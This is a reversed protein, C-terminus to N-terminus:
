VDRAVTAADSPVECLAPPLLATRRPPWSGRRGNSVSLPLRPVQQQLQWMSVHRGHLWVVRGWAWDADRSAPLASVQVAQTLREAAADIDRLVQPASCQGLKIALLAPANPRPLTLHRTTVLEHGEELVRLAHSLAKFDVGGHASAQHTRPGFLAARQRLSTAVHHRAVRAPFKATYLLIYFDDRNEAAANGRIRVFENSAGIAASLADFGIDLLSACDIHADLVALLRAIEGLAQSKRQFGIVQRKAYALMPEIDQSVMRDIGAKLQGVFERGLATTDATHMQSPAFLVEYASIDGALLSGVFTPASAFSVDVDDAHNREGHQKQRHIDQRPQARCTLIDEAHPLMIGKVDTDSQPTALGYLHSGHLTGYIRTSQM